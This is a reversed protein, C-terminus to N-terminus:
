TTRGTPKYNVEAELEEISKGFRRELSLAYYGDARCINSPEDYPPDGHLKALCDRIKDCRLVPKTM